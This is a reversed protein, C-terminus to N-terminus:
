KTLKREWVLVTKNWYRLFSIYATLSRMESIATLIPSDFTHCCQSHYFQATYYWIGAEWDEGTLAILIMLIITFDACLMYYGCVRLEAREINATELQQKVFSCNSILQQVLYVCVCLCCGSIVIQWWVYHLWTEQVESASSINGSTQLQALESRLKANDANLRQLCCIYLDM